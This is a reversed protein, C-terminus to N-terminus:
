RFGPLPFTKLPGDRRVEPCTTRSLVNFMDKSHKAHRLMPFLSKDKLLSSFTTLLSLYANGAADPVAFLVVVFVPVAKPSGWRIGFESLGIAFSLETASCGRALSFAVQDFVTSALSEHELAARTFVRANQIRGAEMLRASLEAIASERRENLLEPILLIPGTFDALTM